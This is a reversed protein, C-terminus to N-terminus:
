LSIPLDPTTRPKQQNAPAAKRVAGARMMNRCEQLRPVGFNERECFERDGSRGTFDSFRM